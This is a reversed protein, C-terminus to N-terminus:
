AVDIQVFRNERSFKTRLYWNYTYILIRYNFFLYSWDLLEQIKSIIFFICQVLFTDRHEDLFIM